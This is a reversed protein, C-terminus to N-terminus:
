LSAEVRFKRCLDDADIAERLLAAMDVNRVARRGTRGPAARPSRPLPQIPVSSHVVVADGDDPTVIDNQALFFAANSSAAFFLRTVEKTGPTSVRIVGDRDSTLDGLDIRWEGRSEGLGLVGVACSMERLGSTPLDPEVAIQSVPATGLAGYIYNGALPLRGKRFLTMARSNARILLRAFQLCGLPPAAGDAVRDRLHVIGSSLMIRSATDLRPADAVHAFASLKSALVHLVLATLLPKGYAQLTAGAEIAAVNADYAERYVCRLINRQADGLSEEAFVNAPPHSPWEWQMTARADAFVDQIDTDQASLGIMLTPKTVALNVIYDHIAAWGPDHRWSTIQSLRGVLLPRYTAPDAAARVACGHMKIL